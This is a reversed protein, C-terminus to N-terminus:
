QWRKPSFHVASYLCIILSSILYASILIGRKMRLEKTEENRWKEFLENSYNRNVILFYNIILIVFFGIFAWYKDNDGKIRFLFEFVFIFTSLNFLQVLTIMCLAYLGPIDREKKSLYFGYIRYYLYIFIKMM